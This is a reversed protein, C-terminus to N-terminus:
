DLIQPPFPLNLVPMDYVLSCKMPILAYDFLPLNRLSIYFSLFQIFNFSFMRFRFTFSYFDGPFRRLSFARFQSNTVMQIVSHERRRCVGPMRLTRLMKILCVMVDRLTVSGCKDSIMRNEQLM